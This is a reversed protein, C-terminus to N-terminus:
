EVVSGLLWCLGCVFCESAEHPAPGAAAHVSVGLVVLGVVVLAAFRAKKIRM